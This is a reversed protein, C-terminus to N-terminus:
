KLTRSNTDLTSPYFLFIHSSFFCFFVFCVCGFVVIACKRSCTFSQSQFTARQHFECVKKRHPRYLRVTQRQYRKWNKWCLLPTEHRDLLPQLANTKPGADAPPLKQNRQSCHFLTLLTARLHSVTLIHHIPFFLLQRQVRNCYATGEGPM